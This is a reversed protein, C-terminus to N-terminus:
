IVELFVTEEPLVETTRASGFVETVKAASRTTDM